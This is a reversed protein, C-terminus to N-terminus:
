VTSAKPEGKPRSPVSVWPMTLARRRSGPARVLPIWSSMWVSAGMLGPFEPPGRTSASPRTMPTFVAIRERVPPLWPMPNATGARWTWSSRARTRPPRVRIPRAGSGAGARGSGGAADSGAVGSPSGGAADADGGGRGSGGTHSPM